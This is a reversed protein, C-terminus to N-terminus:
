CFMSEITLIIYHLNCIRARMFIVNQMTVFVLFFVFEIDITQFDHQIQKLIFLHVHFMCVMFMTNLIAFHTHTNNVDINNINGVHNNM